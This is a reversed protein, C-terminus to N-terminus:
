TKWMRPDFRFAAPKQVQIEQFRPHHPNLLYNREVPIVASPASLVATRKEEVWKKGMGRLSEPPPYQRWNRPLGTQKISHIELTEPIEAAIAVLNAPLEGPDLNVFLELAALSLTGATYVM